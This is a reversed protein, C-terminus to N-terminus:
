DQTELLIRDGSELLLYDGDELLLYDLESDTDEGVIHIWESFYEVGEIVVVSEFKGCPLPELVFVEVYLVRIQSAGLPSTKKGVLEVFGDSGATIIDQYVGAVTRVEGLTGGVKLQFSTQVGTILGIEYTIYYATGANVSLFPVTSNTFIANGPGSGPEIVFKAYGAEITWDINGPDTSFTQAWSGAGSFDGNPLNLDELQTPPTLGDYYVYTYEEDDFETVILSEDLDYECDENRLYWRDVTPSVALPIRFQFPLMNTAPVILYFECGNCYSKFKNQKEINDYWRWATFIPLQSQVFAPNEMDEFHVLESYFSGQDTEIVMYYTGCELDLDPVPSAGTYQIYDTNVATLSDLKELIGVEASFVETGDLCHFTWGIINVAELKTDFQFPPVINLPAFLSFDCSASCQAKFRNQKGLSNYWRLATHLENQIM